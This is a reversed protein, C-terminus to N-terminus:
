RGKVLPKGSKQWAIVGGELELVQSFGAARLEQAAKASRGGSRCYVLVPKKPDAAVKARDVLGAEGFAKGNMRLASMSCNSAPM